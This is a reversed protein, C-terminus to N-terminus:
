CCWLVHIVLAICSTSSAPYFGSRDGAQGREFLAMWRACSMFMVVMWCGIVQTASGFVPSFKILSLESNTCEM